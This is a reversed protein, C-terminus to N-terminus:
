KRILRYWTQWTETGVIKDVEFEKGCLNVIDAARYLYMTHNEQILKRGDKITIQLKVKEGVRNPKIIRKTGGAIRVTKKFGDETIKKYDWIDFIFYGGKKLPLNKWWEQSPIYNIVDFLATVCDFLGFKSYDPLNQIDGQIIRNKYPSKNIMDQSKEIGYVKCPLYKWYSATGCGIDLIINPLNAFHYVLDMESKYPKKSNMRDYYGSYLNFM